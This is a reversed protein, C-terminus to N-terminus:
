KVLIKGKMVVHISCFYDASKTVTKKWSGGSKLRPSAWTKSVETVDHNVIDKNTWMVVDGKKVSLEAPIFKMDKIQVHHLRPANPSPITNATLLLASAMLIFTMNRISIESM